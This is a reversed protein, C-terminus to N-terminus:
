STRALGLCVDVDRMARAADVPTDLADQWAPEGLWARAEACADALFRTDAPHAHLGAEAALSAAATFLRCAVDREGRASALVAVIGLLAQMTPRSGVEEAIARARALQATAEPVRGAALDVAALNLLAVAVSEEDEVEQALALAAEYSTRADDARGELRDLQGTENITVALQRKDGRAQAISRSEVLHGRAEALRGRHIEAVGLTHLVAAVAPLLALERAIQLSEELHAVAPEYRGSLLDLQGSQFLARCRALDPQRADARALAEAAMRRGLDFKGRYVWYLTLCSVLRLGLPASGALVDVHEHAAMVNELERDLRTLWRAQARGELEPRATEVLSVFHELHRARTADREDAAVLYGDAYQRVTELMVYREGAADLTVLSKEVLQALLELVDDRALDGHAAVAEAADLTFGGAFVSLRRFLTRERADLLDHSWDILARLTQQRPLATRDGQRLLRFRDALREAIVEVPLTGIRAAALELALPIGDVRQCIGAVTGANAETLAFDPRVARARDVFLRPADFRELVSAALAAGTGPTALPELRYVQEGRVNLRERSTAVIRVKPAAQLIQRAVEACAAVLHECNDLVILAGRDALFAHLTDDLREARAERVGLASAISHAVVRPDNVAALEVFWVGDAHEDRVARALELALRSKGLGGIGVLTLLRSAQLLTRVDALERTRGVFSTLMEPLNSPIAALSRLPPFDHRLQPHLVQSLTEARALDRLRVAGLERLGVGESLRERLMVAMAESVLVQGGHAASMIRAARNVVTGYYDDDRATHAGAHLGCRVLLPTGATAQPDLLAVQFAVAANVGDLPDDFVAHVGDGTSKVVRGRHEGVCRRVLADHAALAPHMREPADEWMRTSGVIDTFLFTAIDPRPSTVVTAPLDAKLGLM